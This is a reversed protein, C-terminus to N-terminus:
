LRCVAHIQLYRFIEIHSLQVAPSILSPKGDTPLNEGPCAAKEAKNIAVAAISIVDAICSMFLSRAPIVNANIYSLEVSYPVHRPETKHDHPYPYPSPSLKAQISVSCADSGTVHLM